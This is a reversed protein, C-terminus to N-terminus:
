ITMIKSISAVSQSDNENYAYIVRKSDTDMLVVSHASTAYGKIVIPFLFIFFFLKKMIDGLYIYSFLFLINNM